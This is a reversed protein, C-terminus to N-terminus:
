LQGRARRWKGKDFVETKTRGTGKTEVMEAGTIPPIPIDDTGTQTKPDSSVALSLSSNSIM